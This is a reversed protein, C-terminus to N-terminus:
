KLFLKIIGLPVGAIIIVSVTFFTMRWLKVGSLHLCFYAVYVWYLFSSGAFLIITIELDNMILTGVLLGAIRFILLLLTLFFSYKLKKRIIFINSIPYGSFEFLLWPSLYAAIRGSSEWEKSFVFSFIEQGWFITVFFPLIGLIFLTKFTNFTIETLDKNGANL